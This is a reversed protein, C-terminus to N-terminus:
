QLVCTKKKPRGFTQFIEEQNVDWIDQRARSSARLLDDPAAHLANLLARQQLPLMGIGALDQQEVSRLHVLKAGGLKALKPGFDQLDLAALLEM